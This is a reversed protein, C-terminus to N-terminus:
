ENTAGQELANEVAKLITHSSLTAGSISDVDLSQQDIITAIIQEANGGLGNNHDIIEINEIRHDVVTVELIVIVPDMTYEGNYIGDDITELHLSTYELSQTRQQVVFYLGIFLGGVIICGVLLVGLLVKAIKNM